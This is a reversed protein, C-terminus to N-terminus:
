GAAELYPLRDFRGSLFAVGAVVAILAALLGGGALVWRRPLRPGRRIAPRAKNERGRRITTRPAARKSTM